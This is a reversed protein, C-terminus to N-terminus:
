GGLSVRAAVSMDGAIKLRGSVYAGAFQRENELARLLTERQGRWATFGEGEDPMGSADRTALPAGSRGDVFIPPEGEADLMVVGAFPSRFARAASELLDDSRDAM